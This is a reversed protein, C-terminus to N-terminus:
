IANWPPRLKLRLEAEVRKRDATPFFWLTITTGDKAAGLILKNLRCNTEQGRKYCKRPSIQGYDYWRKNLNEAEGVYALVESAFVAYVGEARPAQPVRFKCFEGDGYRHLQADHRGRYRSQPEHTHITGDENRRVRVESVYRFTYGGIDKSASGSSSPAAPRM